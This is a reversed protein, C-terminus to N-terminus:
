LHTFSGYTVTTPDWIRQYNVGSSEDIAAVTLGPSVYIAVHYVDGQTDHFFVLDGPQAHSAPILRAAQSQDESIRPTVFGAKMYSYMVLGSCDFTKPGTAGWVYRQGIHKRAEALVLPLVSVAPAGAAVAQGARTDLATCGLFANSGWGVNVAWVCAQHTGTSVPTSAVYNANSGSGAPAGSTTRTTTVTVAPRGDVYLVVSLHKSRFDQDTAFGTVQLSTATTTARSVVGTPSHAAVESTSARRGLPTALCTFVVNSGLGSNQVGVCVTHNGAPVPVAMVFGPTPGASYTKTIRTFPVSTAQVARTVGDVLAFATANNTPNDPDVAWGRLTLGTATAVKASLGGSPNHATVPATTVAGASPAAFVALGATLAIVAVLSGSRRRLAAPSLLHVTESLRVTKSM